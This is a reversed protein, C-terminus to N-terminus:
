GKLFFSPSGSLPKIIFNDLILDVENEADSGNNAIKKKRNKTNEKRKKMKLKLQKKSLVKAKSKIMKKKVILQEKKPKKTTFTLLESRRKYKRPKNEIQM